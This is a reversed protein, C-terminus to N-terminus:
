GVAWARNEDHNSVRVILNQTGASQRAKQGAPTHGHTCADQTALDISPHMAGLVRLEGFIQSASRVNQPHFLRDQTGEGVNTHIGDGVELNDLEDLAGDNLGAGVDEDGM